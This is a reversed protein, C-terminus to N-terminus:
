PAPQRISHSLSELNRPLVRILGGRPSDIDAILFFAVSLALPLVLLLIPGTRHSSYGVLLNGCIALFGMLAWAPPPIRNWWAAQTYAQSNLTDNMAEVALATVATPRAMAGSKACAWLKIQLDATGAEVERLHASDRSEYFDIRQHLYNSLLTRVREAEIPPLLDARVYATGIANAEEAELNKRQDYRSIAMSFSFGIILGLLTLTATVVVDLDHRQEEDLQRVRTRIFEGAHGCLWFTLFAAASMLIPFNLIESM